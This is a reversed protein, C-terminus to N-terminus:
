RVVHAGAKKAKESVPTEGLLPNAPRDFSTQAQVTVVECKVRITGLNKLLKADLRPCEDDELM